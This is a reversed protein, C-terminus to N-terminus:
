MYYKSLVRDYYLNAPWELESRSVHGWVHELYVTIPTIVSRNTAVLWGKYRGRRPESRLDDRLHRLNDDILITRDQVYLVHYDRKTMIGPRHENASKM